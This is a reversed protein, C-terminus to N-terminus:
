IYHVVLSFFVKGVAENDGNFYAWEFYFTESKGKAVTNPVNWANMKESTRKLTWGRNTRNTFRVYGGQGM